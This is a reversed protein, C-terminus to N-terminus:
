RYSIQIFSSKQQQISDIESLISKAKMRSNAIKTSFSSGKNEPFASFLLATIFLSEIENSTADANWDYKQLVKSDIFITVTTIKGPNTASFGIYKEAGWAENFEQPVNTIILSIKTDKEINTSEIIRNLLLQERQHDLKDLSISPHKNIIAIQNSFYKKFVFFSYTGICAIAILTLTLFVKKKSYM